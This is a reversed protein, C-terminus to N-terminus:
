LTVNAQGSGKYVIDSTPSHRKVETKDENYFKKEKLNAVLKRM